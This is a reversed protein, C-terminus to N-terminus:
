LFGNVGLLFDKKKLGKQSLFEKMTEPEEVEVFFEMSELNPIFEYSLLSIRCIPKEDISDRSCEWEQISPYVQKKITKM